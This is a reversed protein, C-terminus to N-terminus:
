VEMELLAELDSDPILDPGPDEVPELMSTTYNYDGLRDSLRVYGHTSIDLITVEMGCFRKMDRIFCGPCAIDRGSDVGFEAKMDDWQRIRVVDGVHFEHKSESM